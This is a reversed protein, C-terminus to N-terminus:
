HMCDTMVYFVYAYIINVSVLLTGAGNQREPADVNLRGGAFLLSRPHTEIAQRLSGGVCLEQLCLILFHPFHPFIIVNYINFLNHKALESIFKHM